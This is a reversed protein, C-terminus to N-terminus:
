SVFYNTYVRILSQENKFIRAHFLIPAQAAALTAYNLRIPASYFHPSEEISQEKKQM